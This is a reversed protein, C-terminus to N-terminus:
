NPNSEELIKQIGQLVPKEQKRLSEVISLSVCFMELGNFNRFTSIMKRKRCIIRLDRESRNNTFDVDFNNLFLTHETYYKHLRNILAREKKRLKKSDITKNEKQALRMIENFKVKFDKLEKQTFQNSSQKNEKILNRKHDYETLLSILQEPWLHGTLLIM